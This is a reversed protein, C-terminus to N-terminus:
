KLGRSYLFKGNSFTSAYTDYDLKKDCLECKFGMFSNSGVGHPKSGEQPGYTAIPWHVGHKCCSHVFWRALRNIANDVFVAFRIM